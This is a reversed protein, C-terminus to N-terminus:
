SPLPTGRLGGLSRAPDYPSARNADYDVVMTPWREGKSPGTRWEGERLEIGTVKNLSFTRWGPLPGSSSGGTQWVHAVEVGKEHGLTIPCFQRPSGDYLCFLPANNEISWAFQRYTRSPM